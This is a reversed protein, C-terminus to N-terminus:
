DGGEVLVMPVLGDKDVLGHAFWLHENEQGGVLTEKAVKGEKGLSIFVDALVVGGAQGIATAEDERLFAVLVLLALGVKALAELAQEGFGLNYYIARGDLAKRGIGTRADNLAEFMENAVGVGVELHELSYKRFVTDPADKGIIPVVEKM